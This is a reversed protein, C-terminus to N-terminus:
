EEDTEEKENSGYTEEDEEESDLTEWGFRKPFMFEISPM